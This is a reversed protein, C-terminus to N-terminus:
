TSPFRFNEAGHHEEGNKFESDTAHEAKAGEDVGVEAMSGGAEAVSDAVVTSVAEVSAAVLVRGAAPPSAESAAATISAASRAPACGQSLTFLARAM